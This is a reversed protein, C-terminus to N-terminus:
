LSKRATTGYRCARPSSMYAIDGITGSIM